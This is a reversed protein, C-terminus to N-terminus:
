DEIHKAYLITLAIKGVLLRIAEMVCAL